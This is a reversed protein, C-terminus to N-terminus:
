VTGNHVSPPHIDRCCPRRLNALSTKGARGTIPVPEAILYTAWLAPGHHPPTLVQPRSRPTEAQNTVIPPADPRSPQPESVCRRDHLENKRPSLRCGCQCYDIALLISTADCFLFPLIYFISFLVNCSKIRYALFFRQRSPSNSNLNSLHILRCRPLQGSVATFYQFRQSEWQKFHFHTPLRLPRRM